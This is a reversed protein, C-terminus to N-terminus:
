RSAPPLVIYQAEDEPIFMRRPMAGGFVVWVMTGDENLDDVVGAGLNRSGVRVRVEQGRLLASGDVTLETM